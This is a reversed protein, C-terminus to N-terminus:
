TLLTILTAWFIVKNDGTNTNPSSGILSAALLHIFMFYSGIIVGILMGLGAGEIWTGAPVNPFQKFCSQGIFKYISYSALSFAIVPTCLLLLSKWDLNSKGLDYRILITAIAPISLMGVFLYPYEQGPWRQSEWFFLLAYGIIILLTFLFNPIVKSWQRDAGTRGSHRQPSLRSYWTAYFILFSGIALSGLTYSLGQQDGTSSLLGIHNLRLSPCLSALLFVCLSFLNGAIMAYLGAATNVGILLLSGSGINIMCLFCLNRIAWERDVGGIIANLIFYGITQICAIVLVASIGLQLLRTALPFVKEQIKLVLESFSNNIILHETEGALISDPKVLVRFLLSFSDGAFQLPLITNDSAMKFPIQTKFSADIQLFIVLLALTFVGM